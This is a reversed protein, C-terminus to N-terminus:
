GHTRVRANCNPQRSPSELSKLPYWRTGRVAYDTLYQVTVARDSERRSRGEARPLLHLRQLFCHGILALFRLGRAAALHQSDVLYGLEQPKMRCGDISEGFFAGQRRELDAIAPAEIRLVQRSPATFLIAYGRTLERKAISVAGSKLRAGVFNLM